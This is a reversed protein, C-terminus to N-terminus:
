LLARKAAAIEERSLLQLKKLHAPIDMSEHFIGAIIVHYREHPVFAIYRHGALHLSFDTGEALGERHPTRLRSHNEAIYQFAELLELRYARAQLGGWQERTYQLADWFHQDATATLHYHHKAM